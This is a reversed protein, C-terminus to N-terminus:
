SVVDGVCLLSPQCYHVHTGRRIRPSKHVVTYKRYVTSGKLVKGRDRKKRRKRMKTM